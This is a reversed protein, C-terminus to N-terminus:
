AGLDALLQGVMPGSWVWCLEIVRLGALPQGPTFNSQTPSPAVFDASRLGTEKSVFPMAPGLANIFGPRFVNRALAEDQTYVPAIVAQNALGRELLEDRGFKRLTEELLGDARHSDRAIIFPDAFDEQRAWEPDDVAARINKWDRRSRGLVAVYGDRCAFFGMPFIGGHEICLRGNRRWSHAMEDPGGSNQLCFSRLIEASSVDYIAGPADGDRSRRRWCEALALMVGHAGCWKEPMEVPLPEPQGDAHGIVAAAGSVASAHVGSGALGVQFDWLRIM